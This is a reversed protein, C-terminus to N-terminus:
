TPGEFSSINLGSKAGRLTSNQQSYCFQLVSIVFAYMIQFGSCIGKMQATMSGIQVLVLLNNANLYGGDDDDDEDAGLNRGSPHEPFSGIFLIM